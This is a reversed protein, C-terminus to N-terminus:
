RNCMYYTDRDNIGNALYGNPHHDGFARTIDKYVEASLSPDIGHIRGILAQLSKTEFLLCFNVSMSLNQSELRLDNSLIYEARLNARAMFRGKGTLSYRNNELVAMKDTLLDALRPDILVKDSALALLEDETLGRTGAKELTLVIVLSPSDAEVASYTIMNAGKVLNHGHNRHTSFIYDEKKLQLGVGAAAAEQGICLHVPTKM